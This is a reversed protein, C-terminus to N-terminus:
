QRDLPWTEDDAADEILPDGQPAPTSSPPPEARSKGKGSPKPPEEAPPAEEAPEPELDIPDEQRQTIAAATRASQIRNVVSDSGRENSPTVIPGANHQQNDYEIASELEESMPKDKLLRKIVTKHAMEGWHVPWVHGCKSGARVKEIQARTMYEVIPYQPSDKFRAIAYVVIIENDTRDCNFDVEHLLKTGEDTHRVSFTDTAVVSQADIGVYLGTRRALEMMGKYGIQLTCIPQGNKTKYPILYAFGRSTNVELGVRAADYVCQILSAKSCSQLDFSKAVAMAAATIFRDASGKFSAPLVERIGQSSNSELSAKM